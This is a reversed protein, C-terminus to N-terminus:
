LTHRVFYFSTDRTTSRISQREWPTGNTKSVKNNVTIYTNYLIAIIQFNVLM